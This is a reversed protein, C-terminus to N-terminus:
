RLLLDKEGSTWWPWAGQSFSLHELVFSYCCYRAILWCNLILSISYFVIYIYKWFSYNAISNVTTICPLAMFIGACPIQSPM